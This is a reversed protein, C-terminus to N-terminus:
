SAQGLRRLSELAWGAHQEDGGVAQGDEIRALCRIHWLAEHALAVRERSSALDGGVLVLDRLLPKARAHLAARERPSLRRLAGILEALRELLGAPTTVRDRAGGPRRGAAPWRM